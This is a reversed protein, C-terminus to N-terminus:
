RNRKSINFNDFTYQEAYDLKAGKRIWNRTKNKAIDIEPKFDKYWQNKINLIQEELKNLVRNDREDRNEKHLLLYRQKMKDILYYRCEGDHEYTKIQGNKVFLVYDKEFYVGDEVMPEGWWEIAMDLEEQSSYLDGSVIQAEIPLDENEDITKEGAINPFSDVKNVGKAKAIENNEFNDIADATYTKAKRWKDVIKILYRYPVSPNNVQLRNVLKAIASLDFPALKTDMLILDDYSLFSNMKALEDKVMLTKPSLDEGSRNTANSLNTVSALDEAKVTTTQKSQEAPMPTLYDDSFWYKAAKRGSTTEYEILGREVLSKRQRSFTSHAIGLRDTIIKEAPTFPQKWNANNALDLLTSIFTFESKTIISNSALKNLKEKSISIDYKNNM